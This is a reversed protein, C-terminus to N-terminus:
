EASCRLQNNKETNGIFKDCFTGPESEVPHDENGSPRTLETPHVCPHLVDCFKKRGMLPLEDWTGLCNCIQGLRM